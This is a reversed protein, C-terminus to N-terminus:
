AAIKRSSGTVIETYLLLPNLLRLLRVSDPLAYCASNVSSHSEATALRNASVHKPQLIPVGTTAIHVRSVENLM